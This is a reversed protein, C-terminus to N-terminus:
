AERASTAAAVRQMGRQVGSVHNMPLALLLQEPEIYPEDKAVVKSAPEIAQTQSTAGLPLAGCQVLYKNIHELTNLPTTLLAMSIMESMGLVRLCRMGNEDFSTVAEPYANRIKLLCGKMLMDQNLGVMAPDTRVRIVATPNNQSVLPNYQVHVRVGSLGHRLILYRMLVAAQKESMPKVDSQPAPAPAPANPTATAVPAAVAPPPTVAVPPPPALQDPPIPKDGNAHIDM